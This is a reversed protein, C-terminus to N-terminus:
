SLGHPIRRYALLRLMPFTRFSTVALWTVRWVFGEIRFAEIYIRIVLGLRCVGAGASLVRRLPAYWVRSVIVRTSPLSGCPSGPNEQIQHTAIVTLTIREM